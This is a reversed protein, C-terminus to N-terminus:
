RRGPKPLGDVKTITGDLGVIYATRGVIELSTPLNLGEIIPVFTDGSVMMLQGTNPIAPDGAGGDIPFEGQALGFLTNGRGREVDVLLPAGSAIDHTHVNAGHVKILVGDEPLHPIPGTLAVLIDRGKIDLVAPVINGLEIVLEIDGHRSVSILKNHHADSVVFGGRYSEIAYHVGTPIPADLDPPPPNDLAWQGLDAIVTHDTPGDIRYVGNVDESDFILGVLSVLVYATEGHFIIDMPGGIPAVAEPLGSAWVTQDGTDTDVRIIEGTSGSTVYLAGDPGITSGTAGAIGETLVEVTPETQKAPKHAQVGTSAFLAVVLLALASTTLKVYRMQGKETMGLSRRENSEAADGRFGITSEM